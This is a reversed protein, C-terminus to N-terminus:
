RKSARTRAGRKAASSRARAKKKRTAAAKKSAASRREPGHRLRDKFEDVVSDLESIARRANRPKAVGLAGRVLDEATKKRVGRARLDKILNKGTKAV